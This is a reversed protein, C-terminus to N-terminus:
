FYLFGSKGKGIVLVPEVDGLEFLANPSHICILKTNLIVGRSRCKQGLHVLVKLRVWYM